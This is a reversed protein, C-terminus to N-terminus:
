KLNKLLNNLGYLFWIVVAVWWVKFFWDNKTTGNLKLWEFVVGEIFLDFILLIVFGLIWLKFFSYPKV